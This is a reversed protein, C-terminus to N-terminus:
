RKGDLNIEEAIQLVRSKSLGTMVQVDSPKIKMRLANAAVKEIGEVRGMAKLDEVAKCMEYRRGQEPKRLQMDLCVNVLDVGYHGLYSTRDHEFMKALFDGRESFRFLYSVTKLDTYLADLIKTDETHPDFVKIPYDPVNARVFADVESFMDYLSTPGRWKNRGINVVITSIQYVKGAVCCIRNKLQYAYGLSDYEMVRVPMTSDTTSQFEACILAYGRDGDSFAQFALDRERKRSGYEGGAGIMLENYETSMPTLRSPELRGQQHFLFANCLDAFVEKQGFYRKAVTDKLSYDSQNTKSDAM